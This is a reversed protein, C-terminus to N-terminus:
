PLTFIRRLVEPIEEERVYPFKYFKKEIKKDASKIVYGIVKLGLTASTTLQDKEIRKKIRKEAKKVNVTITSTGM